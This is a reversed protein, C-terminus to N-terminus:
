PRQGKEPNHGNLLAEQLGQVSIRVRARDRHLVELMEMDEMTRIVTSPSLRVRAAVEHPLHVGQAVQRLVCVRVLPINDVLMRQLASLLEPTEAGCARMGLALLSLQSYLRAPGEAITAPFDVAKTYRDRSVPTRLQAIREAVSFAEDVVSRPLSKVSPLQFSELYEGAIRRLDESLPGKIAVNRLLLEKSAGFMRTRITLFREGLMAEMKRGQELAPTGAMLVGIKGEWRIEGRGTARELKGDYADRLISFVMGRDESCLQDIASADKVVLIRHNARFLLSAQESGYGSALAAPTLTSVTYVWEDAGSLSMLIETKGTSAPGILLIWVPVGDLRNAVMAGYLLRLLGEDKSLDLWRSYGARLENFTVFRPRDALDGGPLIM